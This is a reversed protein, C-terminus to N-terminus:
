KMRVNYGVLINQTRTPQWVFFITYSNRSGLSNDKRLTATFGEVSHAAFVTRVNKGVIIDAKIERPLDALCPKKLLHPGGKGYGIGKIRDGVVILIDAVFPTLAKQL